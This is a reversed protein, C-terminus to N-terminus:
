YLFGIMWLPLKNGRPMEIDDSLVFSDPVNAIQNFSKNEGGVEITWKWWNAKKLFLM